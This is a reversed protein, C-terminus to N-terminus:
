PWEKGHRWIQIEVGDRGRKPTIVSMPNRGQWALTYRSRSAALPSSTSLRRFDDVGVLDNRGLGFSNTEGVGVHNGTERDKGAGRTDPDLDWIGTWGRARDLRGERIDEHNLLVDRFACKDQRVPYPQNIEKENRTVM